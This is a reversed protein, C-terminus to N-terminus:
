QSVVLLYKEITAPRKIQHSVVRANLKAQCRKSLYWFPSRGPDAIIVQQVNARLARRILNYLTDEM